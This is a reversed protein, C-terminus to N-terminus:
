EEIKEVKKSQKLGPIELNLDNVKLQQTKFSEEEKLKLTKLRSDTRQKLNELRNKTM